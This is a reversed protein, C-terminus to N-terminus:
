QQTDSPAPVLWVAPIYGKNGRPDQVHKWARGDAQVDGGIVEMRTGDPWSILYDNMNPTRRLWVGVGDSNGVLYYKPPQATPTPTAQSVTTASSTTGVANTVPITATPEVAAATPTSTAAPTPTATPEGFLSSGQLNPTGLGPIGPFSWATGATFIGIVGVFLIFTLLFIVLLGFDRSSGGGPRRSRDNRLPDM